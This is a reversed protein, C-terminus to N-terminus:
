SDVDPMRNQHHVYPRSANEVMIESDSKPLPVHGKEFEPTPQLNKLDEKM